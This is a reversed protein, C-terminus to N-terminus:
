PIQSKGNECEKVSLTFNFKNKEFHKAQLNGPLTRSKYINM